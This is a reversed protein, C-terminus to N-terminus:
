CAYHASCLVSFFRFFNYQNSDRKNGKKGYMIVTSDDSRFVRFPKWKKKMSFSSNRQRIFFLIKYIYICNIPTEGIKHPHHTCCWNCVTVFRLSLFHFFFLVFSDFNSEAYTILSHFFFFFIRWLHKLVSILWWCWRKAIEHNFLRFFFYIFSSFRIKRMREIHTGAMYNLGSSRSCSCFLSNKKTKTHPRYQQQQSETECWYKECEKKRKKNCLASVAM